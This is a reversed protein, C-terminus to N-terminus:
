RALLAILETAATAATATTLAVPALGDRVRPRPRIGSSHAYRRRSEMFVAISLPLGVLGVLAILGLRGFTLRSVLASAAGMALATRQWALATRENAMGEDLSPPTM